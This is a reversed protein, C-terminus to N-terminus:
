FLYDKSDTFVPQISVEDSSYGKNKAAVLAEERSDGKAIFNGDKDFSAFKHDDKSNKLQPMTVGPIFVYYDIRLQRITLNFM